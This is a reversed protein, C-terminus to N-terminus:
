TLTYRSSRPCTGSRCLHTKTCLFLGGAALLSVCRSLRRPPLRIPCACMRACGRGPWVLPRSRTADASTQTERFTQSSRRAACPLSLKTVINTWSNGSNNASSYSLLTRADLWHLGRAAAAHVEYEGVVSPRTCTRTGREASPGCDILLIRGNELGVAVRRPASAVSDAIGDSPGPRPPPAPLVAMSTIPAGLATLLGCQSLQWGQGGMAGGGHPPPAVAALGGVPVRWLWVRGDASIGGFREGDPASAAFALLSSGGGKLLPVMSRFAFGVKVDQVAPRVDVAASSPFDAEPSPPAGVATTTAPAQKTHSSVHRVWCSLCGDHHTALITSPLVLSQSLGTFDHDTRDLRISTLAIGVGLDWLLLERPMLVFLHDSEHLSYELSLVRSAGSNGGGTPTATGAREHLSIRQPAAYTNLPGLQVLHGRHGCHVALRGGGFADFAAAHATDPLQVQWLLSTETSADSAAASPLQYAASANSTLQYAALTGPAHLCVLTDPHHPLWHLRLAASAGAKGGSPHGPESLWALVVGQQVDWIAIEGSTDATALLLPADETLSCRTPPRPAWRVLSVNSKHGDLTGVLAVAEPDVICVLAHAAYALLGNRFDVAGRNAQADLHGPVALPTFKAAPAPRTSSM